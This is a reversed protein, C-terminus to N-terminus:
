YDLLIWSEPLWEAIEEIVPTAESFYGAEIAFWQGTDRGAGWIGYGQWTGGSMEDLNVIGAGPIDGCDDDATKGTSDAMTAMGSCICDLSYVYYGGDTKKQVTGQRSFVINEEKQNQLKRLYVIYGRRNFYEFRSDNKIANFGFKEPNAFLTKYLENREKKTMKDDLNGIRETKMKQELLTFSEDQYINENSCSDLSLFIVLLIGLNLIRKM